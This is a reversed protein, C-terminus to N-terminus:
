LHKVKHPPLGAAPAKISCLGRSAEPGLPATLGLAPTRLWPFLSCAAKGDSPAM